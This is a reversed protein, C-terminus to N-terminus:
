LVFTPKKHNSSCIPFTSNILKIVSVILHNRLKEYSLIELNQVLATCTKRQKESLNISKNIKSVKAVEFEEDYQLIPLTKASPIRSILDTSGM